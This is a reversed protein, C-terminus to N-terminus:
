RPHSPPGRREPAGEPSGTSGHALLGAVAGIDIGVLHQASLCDSSGHVDCLPEKGRRVGHGPGHGGRREDDVAGPLDGDGYTSCVLLYFCEPDFDGPAFDELNSLDVEHEAFRALGDTGNANMTFFSELGQITREIVTQTSGTPNLIFNDFDRHVASENDVSAIYYWHDFGINPTRDEFLYGTKGALRPNVPLIRYGQNQLFEMVEHSPRSTKESAGVLAITKVTTLIDRIQDPTTSPM